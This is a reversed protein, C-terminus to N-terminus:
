HPQLSQRIFFGVSPCEQIESPPFPCTGQRGRECDPCITRKARDIVPEQEYGYLEVAERVEALTHTIGIGEKTLIAVINRLTGRNIVVFEDLTEDDFGDSNERFRVFPVIDNEFSKLTADVLRDVDRDTITREM